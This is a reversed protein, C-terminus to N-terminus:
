FSYGRLKAPFTMPKLPKLITQGSSPTLSLGSLFMFSQVLNWALGDLIDSFSLHWGWPPALPCDLYWLPWKQIDTCANWFSNPSQLAIWFCFAIIWNCYCKKGVVHQLIRKTYEIMYKTFHLVEGWGQKHVLCNLIGREYRIMSRNVQPINWVPTQLMGWDQQRYLIWFLYVSLILSATKTSNDISNM